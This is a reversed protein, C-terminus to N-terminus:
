TFDLKAVSWIVRGIYNLKGTPWSSPKQLIIRWYNEGNNLFHGKRRPGGESGQSNSCPLSVIGLIAAKSNKCCCRRGEVDKQGFMSLLSSFPLRLRSPTCGGLQTVGHSVCKSHLLVLMHTLARAVPVAPSPVFYFYPSESRHRETVPPGMQSIENWGPIFADWRPHVRRMDLSEVSVSKDSKELLLEGGKGGNLDSYSNTWM